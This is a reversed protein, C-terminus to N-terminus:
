GIVPGIGATGYEAGAVVGAGYAGGADLGTGYGGGVAGAGM